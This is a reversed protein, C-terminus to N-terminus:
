SAGESENILHLLWRKKDDLNYLTKVDSQIAQFQSTSPITAISYADGYKSIWAMFRKVDRDLSEQVENIKFELYDIEHQIKEKM